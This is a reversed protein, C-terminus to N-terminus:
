AKYELIYGSNRINKIRVESGLAAFKKRLFSIYVQVNSDMADSDYGWVKEIIADSSLMIDKNTILYELLRAEKQTLSYKEGGRKLVFTLPDLELDGFSLVDENRFEGRRRTVAKIRAILEETKFPKPLYDDAGSDLGVVKDETEGKATLLIVPTFIEENRLERLVTLGDMKPLMIDLLIVDYVGSLANDFGDEGDLSIDVDFNNKRLVQAVAEALYQEDEVILVKM